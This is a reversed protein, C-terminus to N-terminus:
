TRALVRSFPAQGSQRFGMGPFHATLPFGTLSYHYPKRRIGIELRKQLVLNLNKRPKGSIGLFGQPKYQRLPVVVVGKPTNKRM